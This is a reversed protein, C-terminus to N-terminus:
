ARRFGEEPKPGAMCCHNAIEDISASGFAGAPKSGLMGERAWFGNRGADSAERPVVNVEAPVSGGEACADLWPADIPLLNAAAAPDAPPDPATAWLRLWAGGSTM